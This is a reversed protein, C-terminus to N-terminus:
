EWGMIQRLLAAEQAPFGEAVCALLFVQGMVPKDFQSIMKLVVGYGNRTTVDEKAMEMCEKAEPRISEVMKYLAVKKEEQTM